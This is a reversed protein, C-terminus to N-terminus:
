MKCYGKPNCGNPCKPNMDNADCAYTCLPTTARDYSAMTCLDSQCQANGTCAAFLPLLGADGPGSSTMDVTTAPPETGGCGVVLLPILLALTYLCRIRM